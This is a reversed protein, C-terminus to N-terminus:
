LNCLWACLSSLHIENTLNAANTLTGSNLHNWIESAMSNEIAAGIFFLEPKLNQEDFKKRIRALASNATKWHEDAGAPDIGGKLEGLAIYFEPLSAKEQSYENWGCDFLSMDVGNGTKGLFPVKINYMLTRSKGQKIWCLGKASEIDKPDSYKAELWTSSNNKPLWYFSTGAIRLSAVLARTFQRQAFAGVLNRMSGGLTDGRTLLFRYVLEEVFHNGAPELYKEILGDIADNHGQRDMHGAAKDSIGAATLLGHQIDSIKKLESPNSAHEAKAKLDKAEAIYSTAKENRELAISVFGARTKEYPTMLDKFTILHKKYVNM